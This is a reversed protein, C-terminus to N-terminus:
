NVAGSREVGKGSAQRLALGSTDAADFGAGSGSGSEVKKWILHVEAGEHSKMSSKKFVKWGGRVVACRTRNEDVLQLGELWQTCRPTERSQM